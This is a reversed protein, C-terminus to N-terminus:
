KKQLSAQPSGAKGDFTYSVAAPSSLAERISVVSHFLGVEILENREHDVVQVWAVFIGALVDCGNKKIYVPAGGMECKDRHITVPSGSMGPVTEGNERPPLVMMFFNKGHEKWEKQQEPQHSFAAEVMSPTMKKAIGFFKKHGTKQDATADPDIGTIIVPAGEIDAETVTPDDRVIQSPMAFNSPSTVNITAIDLGGKELHKREGRLGQVVHKNTVLRHNNGLFFANAYSVDDSEPTYASPTNRFAPTLKMGDPGKITVQVPVTREVEGPDWTTNKLQEPPVKLEITRLVRALGNNGKGEAADKFTQTKMENQARTIKNRLSNEKQIDLKGAPQALDKATRTIPATDATRVQQAEAPSNAAVLGFLAAGAAKAVEASASKRKDPGKSGGEFSM